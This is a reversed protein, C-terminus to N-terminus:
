IDSMIELIKPIINKFRQKEKGKVILYRMNLKRLEKKYITYLQDRENPNERQSDKEWSIDTKCLLYLRKEKPYKLINNIIFKDCEQYKYESWIKITILDTDCFILKEDDYRKELEIQKRAIKKLDSKEYKRDLNNIFDRAYEKVYPCNFYSSLQNILTTKGTSEPGTLIIKLPM